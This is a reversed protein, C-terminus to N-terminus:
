NLCLGNQKRASKLHFPEVIIKVWGETNKKNENAPIVAISKKM